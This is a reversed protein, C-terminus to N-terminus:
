FYPAPSRHNLFGTSGHVVAIMNSWYQNLSFNGQGASGHLLNHIGAGKPGDNEVLIMGDAWWDNGGGGRAFVIAGFPCADVIKQMTARDPCKEKFWYNTSIIATTCPEV